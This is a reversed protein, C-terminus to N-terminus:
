CNIIKILDESGVNFLADIVSLGSIFEKTGRQDYIPHMYNQFELNIGQEVFKEEELYTESGGGCLYVQGNLKKTYDILAQTAFSEIDLASSLVIKGTDINLIACLKEIANLNYQSINDNKYLILDFIEKSHIKYFPHKSYNTELSKIFNERWPKSTKFYSKNISRTGSFDRDLNASVWRQEGSLILKVRNQWSGGKKQLQATDYIIFKDAIAIKNFFGLWPFFNPQHIGIKM